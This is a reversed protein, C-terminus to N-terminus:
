ADITRGEDAGFLRRKAEENAARQAAALNTTQASVQRIENKPAYVDTWGNKISANLASRVDQGARNIKMLEAVVLDRAYDTPEKRKKKRMELYANWADVPICDPLVFAKAKQHNVSPEVSPENITIPAPAAPTDRLIQPPPPACDAPSPHMEQPPADAAPACWNRPDAIFYYTSRGKRMDRKLFKNAELYSISGQVTRESLSTKECLMSMSPYCEGQDNANDCLAVLVFKHTSSLKSKFAASM